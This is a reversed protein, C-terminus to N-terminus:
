RCAGTIEIRADTSPAIFTCLAKGQLDMAVWAHDAYTWLLREAGPAVPPKSVFNPRTDRAGDFDIWSIRFPEPSRNFVWIRTPPGARVSRLSQEDSGPRPQINVVVVKGPDIAGSYLERVFRCADPDQHCLWDRGRSIDPEYFDAKVESRFYYKTMEAFWEHADKAAYAGKWHGSDISRRYEQQIRSRADASMAIWEIAHGLEHVCTDDGYLRHGVVPLLTGESCSSTLGAIHGGIMHWDFLQGNDLRTGREGRFEPLDSTYQALASVHVEWRAAELNARLKPAHGILRDLRERAAVLAADSVSVHGLIPIRGDMLRKGYFGDIPEALMEVGGAQAPAAPAASLSAVLLAVRPLFSMLPETTEHELKPIQISDRV